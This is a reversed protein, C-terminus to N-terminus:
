AETPEPVPRKSLALRIVSTPQCGKAIMEEFLEEAKSVEGVKVLGEILPSYTRETPVCGYRQMEELVKCGEEWRGAKVLGAILASYAVMDPHCGCARMEELLVQASEWEGAKGLSSIIPTFVFLNPVLGDEKMRHFLHWARSLKGVKVFYNILTAYIFLNPTCGSELMEALLSNVEEFHGAKALGDTLCTYTILNPACGKMKMKEFLTWAESLRRTDKVLGHILASYTVVNAECNKAEMEDLVKLADDIRGVRVFGSILASYTVVNPPCGNMEMLNLHKLADDMNGVQCYGDILFTHITVGPSFGDELSQQIVNRVTGLNKRKFDRFSMLRHLMIKYTRATHQFGKKEKVWKFFEFTRNVNPQRRMIEFVTHTSFQVEMKELAEEWGPSSLMDNIIKLTLGFTASEDAVTLGEQMQSMGGEARLGSGLSSTSDVNAEVPNKITHYGSLPRRLPQAKFIQEQQLCSFGGSTLSGLSGKRGLGEHNKNRAPETCSAFSDVPLARCKEGTGDVVRGTASPVSCSREEGQSAIQDGERLWEVDVTYFRHCTNESVWNAGGTGLAGMSKCLCKWSIGSRLMQHKRCHLLPAM